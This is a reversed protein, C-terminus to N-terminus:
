SKNKCYGYGSGRKKRISEKFEAKGYDKWRDSLGYLTKQKFLAGGPRVIDIFGTKILTDIAKHFRRQTIGFKHEAELYTFELEQSNTCHSKEHGKKGTKVIKRRALFLLYVQAAMGKLSLFAKSNIVDREIVIVLSKKDKGM